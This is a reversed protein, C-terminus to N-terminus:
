WPLPWPWWWPRPPKTATPTPTPTPTPTATPTPTPTATPAPTATPTPTETPAPTATPTPTPTTADWVPASDNAPHGPAGAPLVQVFKGVSPSGAANLAWLLYDGPPAAAATPPAKVTVQDGDRRVVVLDLHRQNMNLAHTVSGPAMLTVRTIKSADGEVTFTFESEYNVTKPQSTIVPREGKFLYPPSYLEFTTDWQDYLDDDFVMSQLDDGGSLVRGDPLLMATSHYGRPYRQAPGLKWTRTAPDWLEPQRKTPWSGLPDVERAGKGGGGIITVTGDPLLVAPANTRAKMLPSEDRWRPDIGPRLSSVLPQLSGGPALGGMAYAREPGATTSPEPFFTPYTGVGGRFGTINQWTWTAPDLIGQDAQRPGVVALKGNAMVYSLPYYGSINQKGKVTTADVPTANTEIGPIAQGDAPYLEVEPRNIGAEDRGALIVVKGSPLRTLTPYWRAHVLDTQRVWTETFPDFVFLLKLGFGGGTAELNGGAVLVRGDALQVHGSCFIPAPRALDYGKRKKPDDLTTPPPSIIKFSEPGNGLAPDWIASLGDNNIGQGANGINNARGSGNQSGMSMLLVRGTPLLVTHIAYTPAKFPGATWAGFESAPGVPQDALRQAKASKGTLLKGKADRLGLSRQRLRNLEAPKMARIKAAMENIANHEGLHEKTPEAAKLAKSATTASKAVASADGGHAAAPAATALSM